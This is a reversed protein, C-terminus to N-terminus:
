KWPAMDTKWLEELHERDKINDMPAWFGKHGYAMLQRAEVLEEFPQQELMASGDGLFNFIEPEMIMFGINVWAQDERRKEHFGRIESGNLQITGFRGEPQIISITATRGHGRHFELLKDLAIDALGDGYTLMFPEEGVYKRIKLLRGATLTELGTNVLTVKWDKPGEPKVTAGGGSLDLMANTNHAYYDMFYKKIIQGKYGCCIIFERYGFKSYWEMIHCLIPIGGIEVMPKPKWRSEESIRTGKGGALIVVKM